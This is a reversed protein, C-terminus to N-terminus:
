RNAELSPYAWFAAVALDRFEKATVISEQNEHICKMVEYLEEQCIGLSEHASQHPQQGHKEIRREIAREMKQLAANIEYDQINNM